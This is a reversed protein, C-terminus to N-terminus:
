GHAIEGDAKSKHLLRVDNIAMTKDVAKCMDYVTLAAVTAATLAEMEAGTRYDCNVAATIRVASDLIDVDVTVGTLPIQHCLPILDSTKKAAMIGAIRACALVDGKPVGGGLILAATVPLCTLVAQAAARREVVPKGGIEVMQARGKEDIHTFGESM